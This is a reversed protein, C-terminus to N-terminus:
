RSNNDIYGSYGFKALDAITYTKRILGDRENTEQLEGIGQNGKKGQQATRVVYRENNGDTRNVNANGEIVTVTGNRRDVSEIVGIHSSHQTRLGQDTKVQYQPSKWIIYDGSKMSPIQQSIQSTRAARDEELNGARTTNTAIPKYRHNRTGWDIFQQVGCFNQNEGLIGSDHGVRNAFAACWSSDEDVSPINYFPKLFTDQSHAIRYNNDRGGQQRMREIEEKTYETYGQKLYRSANDAVTRGRQTTGPVYSSSTTTQQPTQTKTKKAPQSAQHTNGTFISVGSSGTNGRRITPDVPKKTQISSNQCTEYRKKDYIGGSM